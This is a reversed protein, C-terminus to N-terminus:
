DKYANMIKEYQAIAAAERSAYASAFDTSKNQMLGNMINFMGVGGDFMFGFDVVRGDLIIDYVQASADDRSYKTKLAIEYFGPRVYNYGEYCYAEFLVTTREKDTVTIPITYIYSLPNVSTLYKEQAEDYKPMPLVGYDDEIERFNLDTQM